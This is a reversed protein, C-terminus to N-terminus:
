HVYLRRYIAFAEYITRIYRHPEALRIVELFLDPDDPALEEWLLTNGPGGNYAALVDFLDGGFRQRQSALYHVGFRISVLPRYLDDSTYDPPWGLDTAIEAGTDPVVQMLGRADAFSTAIGDFLSEQRVVSLVFLSEFGEDAAAPLILEGFYPGFRVRNFYVPANMTAADDMGALQLIQRSALIAQRYLRLDLFKHMLRYTSEADPMYEQQLSAFEAAAQDSLGLRLLEEGRLMRPDSALKGDLDTLPDPGVIPFANRLWAEAQVRESDLDVNFDPVGGSDFMQRAELLDTARLSYYGTPDAASAELWAQKASATDGAARYSKGIWLLASATEGPEGAIGQALEFAGRAEGPNGARFRVIGAEYAGQFALRSTPYESPIRLWIEAATSFDGIREATQGAAFLADPAAPSTPLAEVFALYTGVAESYLGLYAWETRAQQLWAEQRYPDDPFDKAARIFDARAAAAEGLARRALGQYYYAAGTPSTANARDFANVAPQYAGANFDVLGRQFEDVQVGADVLTILGTYSDYADPFNLVSALYRDYAAQTEGLSELARGALLNMTARTASDDTEQYVQDFMEIARAADGSEVYARGIKIELGLTSGLRSGAQASQYHSIADAPLGARRLVDGIREEVYSEIRGPRLRLYDQYESVALDWAGLDEYSLGRLFHAWGIREDDAFDAIFVGLAEAAEAQRGARLLTISTGLRAAARVEPDASAQDAAQYEALARDWDGFFLATDADDLIKAPIPTPTATPTPTYTPTSTITATPTALIALQGPLACALGTITLLLGLSLAGGALKFMAAGHYSLHIPM